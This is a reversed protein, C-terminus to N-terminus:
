GDYEGGEIKTLVEALQGALEGNFRIGKATPRLEGDETTYWRRLDCFQQHKYWCVRLRLRQGNALEWEAVTKEGGGHQAPRM